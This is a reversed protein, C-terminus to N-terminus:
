EGDLLKHYVFNIFDNINEPDGDYGDETVNSMDNRVVEYKTSDFESPTIWGSFDAVRLVKPIIDDTVVFGRAVNIYEKSKGNYVFLAIEDDINLKKAQGSEEVFEWMTEDKLIQPEPINVGKPLIFLVRVDHRNTIQSLVDVWEQCMSCKKDVFLWFVVDNKKVLRNFVETKNNTILSQRQRSSMLNATPRYSSDLIPDIQSIAEARTALRRAKDRMMKEMLLLSRINETTPNDAAAQRAIPLNIQIWQSSGAVPAKAKKDEMIEAVKKEVEKEIKEEIMEMVEPPIEYFHWGRAPQYDGKNAASQVPARGENGTAWAPLLFGVLVSLLLVRKM